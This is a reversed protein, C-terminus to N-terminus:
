VKPQRLAQNDFNMKLKAMEKKLNEIEKDKKEVLLELGYNKKKM